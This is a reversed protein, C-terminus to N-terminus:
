GGEGLTNYYERINRVRKMAAYREPSMGTQNAMRLEDLSLGHEKAEATEERDLEAQYQEVTMNTGKVYVDM